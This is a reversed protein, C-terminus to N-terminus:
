GLLYNSLYQLLHTELNEKQDLTFTLNEQELNQQQLEIGLFNKNLCNNVLSPSAIQCTIQYVKNDYQQPYYIVCENENSQINHGKLSKNVLCTVTSYSTERCNVYYQCFENSPRYFFVFPHPAPTSTAPTQLSPTQTDSHTASQPASTVHFANAPQPSTALVNNDQSDAYTTIFSPPSGESNSAQIQPNM